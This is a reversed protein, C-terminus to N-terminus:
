DGFTYSLIYKKLLREYEFTNSIYELEKKLIEIKSNELEIKSIRGYNYFINKKELDKKMMDLSAKINDNKLKSLLLESYASEIEKKIENKKDEYKEKADNLAREKEKYKYTNSPYKISINEIDMKSFEINDKLSLIDHRSELAKKFAEEQNLVIDLSFTNITDESLIPREELYVGRLLNLKIYSNELEQKTTNLNLVLNNYDNEAKEFENLSIKGLRNKVKKIDLLNKQYEINEKEIELEKQKLLVNQYALLVDLKIQEEDKKLKIKSSKIRMDVEKTKDGSKYKYDELSADYDDKDMYNKVRKEQRRIQSYDDELSKLNRMDEKLVSSNEIAEKQAQELSLFELEKEQAFSEFSMISSFLTFVLLILFLIIRHIKKM